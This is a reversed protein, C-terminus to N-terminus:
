SLAGLFSLISEATEDPHEIQPVHGCNAILRKKIGPIRKEWLEAYACPLLKDDRGWILLSPVRIRHLWHELRPSFWRPEWGLRASMFRNTLQRDAEEETLQRSLIEEALIQDYYVNRVTEQPSWIFNDGVPVGKVRLGAPSILTLSALRSCNRTALEAATWGGLSHGFLHVPGRDLAELFDLYYMALDSVSRILEAHRDTGFGPHEPLLVEFDQSLRDFFSNWPPLGGGGHLFLIAQGQGGSLLKVDVGRVWHISERPM